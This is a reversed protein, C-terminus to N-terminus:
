NLARLQTIMRGETDTLILGTTDLDPQPLSGQVYLDVMVEGTPDALPLTAPRASGIADGRPTVHTVTVQCNTQDFVQTRGVAGDMPAMTARALTRGPPLLVRLRVFGGTGSPRRFVEFFGVPFIRRGKRVHFEFGDMRFAREFNQGIYERLPGAVPTGGKILYGILDSQVIICARPHAALSAIIAQQQTDNLLTFWHTTNAYTPTPLDTWLNFSLMGPFTFLMDANIEANLALIEYGTDNRDPMHIAEAGPIAMGRSSLYRTSLRVFGFVLFMGLGLCGLLYAGRILRTDTPRADEFRFVLVTLAEWAGITWLPVILFLGWAIQSGPVPYAHLWQGLLLLAIWARAQATTGLEERVPWVFLWLSAAVYSFLNKDPFNYPFRLFVLGLTPLCLLRLVGVLNAARKLAAPGRRAYSILGLALACSAVALGLAGPTWPFAFTYRTPHRVPGLITGELLDSLSTGTFLTVGIVVAAVAVGVVTARKWADAGVTLPTTRTLVAYCSIVGLSALAAYEFVWPEHLLTKMLGFPVVAVLLAYAALAYPRWKRNPLNALFLGVLAMGALGGVNIKTLVLASVGAALWGATWTVRNSTFGYLGTWALAATVFAILNGSHAPEATVVWLVAFSVTLCLFSFIFSRTMRWVMATCLACAGAWQLVAITRGTFNTFPMGLAHLTAYVLYPFPGYQTYVDGYLHGHEAFMKYSYLVYGEDDYSMFTSFVLGAAAATLLTGVLCLVLKPLRSTM